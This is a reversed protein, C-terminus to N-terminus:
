GSKKIKVHYKNKKKKFVDPDFPEEEDDEKYNEYHADWFAKAGIKFDEHPQAKYWFVQDELKNSSANMQIVLCEYNETCADITNCFMEFTPFMGAYHDYIKKRNSYINERMIFVYDVNTRLNPPIGLPHQMTIMFMMKYHRGNFFIGKVNKDKIWAHDDMLDDFILFARPDINSKGTADIEKKWKRTINKQRTYVNDILSQSYNDHIFLSPLIHSYFKNASETGSIVTGLPLDQHHYLLDRVVFSKGTRRKGIFIIVSDDQISTIDFKRLKLQM